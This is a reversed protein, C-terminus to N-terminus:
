LSLCVDFMNFLLQPIVFFSQFCFLFWGQRQRGSNGGQHMPLRCVARPSVNRSADLLSGWTPHAYLFEHPTEDSTHADTPQLLHCPDMCLCLWWMELLFPSYMPSGVRWSSPCTGTVGAAWTCGRMKTSPCLANSGEANALIYKPM